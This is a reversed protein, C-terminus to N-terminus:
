QENETLAKLKEVTEKIHENEPALALAQEYAALAKDNHDATMYAEGLSDYGNAEEPFLVVNLRFTNIAEELEGRGLFVYGAANLESATNVKDRIQNALGRVDINKDSLIGEQQWNTLFPFSYYNATYPEAELIKLLDRELSFVPYEVIRGKEVGGQYVIFTPVRYISKDREENSPSQKYNKGTDVGIITLKKNPFDIEDLIKLFKPVERRSDGCWTGLFIEINYNKLDKTKLREIIEANPEYAEYGSDFWESYPAKSLDQQSFKGLLHASSTPQQAFLSASILLFALLILTLKKM